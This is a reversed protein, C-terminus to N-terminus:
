RKQFRVSSRTDLNPPLPSFDNSGALMPRITDLEKIVFDFLARVRPTRKMDPHMLLYFPTVVDRIPGLVRVLDGDDDGAVIPLLAIGAGSKVALLLTSLSSSRAAVKADSAVSQLWRAAQHASMEGDFKIVSHHGIDEPRLIRGHREIYSRSAYVAWPSDAIKRGVLSKDESGAARIAIDAQGKSLDLSRDSMVFELRLGPYAATFKDILHSRMLRYGLTEPCTVRVVGKLEKESAGIQRGFAAVADEVREAYARMEIGFETLRYGTPHRKVLHRGLRTELEALRRHVTSQSVGLAKAAGLTSGSRAVALFHKLDNWDFM